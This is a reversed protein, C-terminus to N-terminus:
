AGNRTVYAEVADPGLALAGLVVYGSPPLSMMPFIATAVITGIAIARFAFRAIKYTDVSIGIRRCITDALQDDEADIIKTLTPRNSITM